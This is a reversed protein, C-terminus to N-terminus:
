RRRGRAGAPSRGSGRAPAVHSPLSVAILRGRGAPLAGLGGRDQEPGVPDALALAPADPRQTDGVYLRYRVLLGDADWDHIVAGRYWEHSPPGADVEIEAVVTSGSELLRLVQVDVRDHDSWDEAYRAQVAARITLVPGDPRKFDVRAAVLGALRELDQANHAAIYQRSLEAPTRMGSHDVVGPTSAPVQKAGLTGVLTRASRAKLSGGTVCRDDLRAPPAAYLGCARPSWRGHASRSAVVRPRCSRRWPPAGEAGAARVRELVRGGGGRRGPGRRAAGVASAPCVM